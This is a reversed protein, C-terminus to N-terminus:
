FRWLGGRLKYDVPQMINEVTDSNPAYINILAIKLSNLKLNLCLLNGNQDEHKSEVEYETSDNILIAM